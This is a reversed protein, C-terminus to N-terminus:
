PSQARVRRHLVLLCQAPDPVELGAIGLQEALFNAPEGTPEGVEVDPAAAAAGPVVVEAGDGSLQTRSLTDLRRRPFRRERVARDEDLEPDADWGETVSATRNSMHRRAGTHEDRCASM